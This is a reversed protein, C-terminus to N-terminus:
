NEFLSTSVVGGAERRCREILRMVELPGEPTVFPPRGTRIAEALDAYLDIARRSDVRVVTDKVAAGANPYKRGPSALAANLRRPKM